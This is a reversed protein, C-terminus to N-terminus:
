GNTAKLADIAVFLNRHASATVRGDDLQADVLIAAEVLAMVEPCRMAEPPTLPIDTRRYEPAGDPCESREDIWIGARPVAGSNPEDEFAWIHAPMESVQTM